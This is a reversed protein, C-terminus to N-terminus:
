ASSPMRSLTADRPSPSTYLLCLNSDNVFRYIVDDPNEESRLRWLAVLQATLLKSKAKDGRLVTADDLWHHILMKIAHNKSEHARIVARTTGNLAPKLYPPADDFKFDLSINYHEWAMANGLVANQEDSNREFETYEYELNKLMSQYYSSDRICM